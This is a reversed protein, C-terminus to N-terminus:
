GKLFADVGAYDAAIVLLVSNGRTEVVAKDLKPLEAPMYDALGEKRDEVRYGLQTAAAQAATEDSLTFIALEEACGTAGYVASDTVTSEDMGYLACATSRDIETMAESFVGETELLTKADAAPDFATEGGGCAALSMVLAASIFVSLFKKM